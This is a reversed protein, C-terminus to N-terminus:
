SHSSWVTTAKEIPPASQAFPTARGTLDLKKILMKNARVRPQVRNDHVKQLLVKQLLRRGASSNRRDSKGGVVAALPGDHRFVGEYKKPAKNQLRMCMSPQGTAQQAALPLLRAWKTRFEPLPPPPGASPWWHAVGLAEALSCTSQTSILDLDLQESRRQL